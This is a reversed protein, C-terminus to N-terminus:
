KSSDECFRKSSVDIRRAKILVFLSIILCLVGCASITMPAGIERAVTGGALSGIPAFGMFATVFLSMMRGRLHGPTTYQLLTISGAIAITDFIGVLVLTLLGIWLTSTQSFAFVSISVPILAAASITSLKDSNKRHALILAGIFSGGAAAAMLWGLTIAGGGFVQDAFIPLMYVLPMILLSVIALIIFGLKLGPEGWMHKIGHVIAPLFPTKDKEVHLIKDRKMMLLATILAMFTLTNFLFCEGEGRWAVIWGAIMPGIMRAAHLMAGNLSVANLLDKKGVLDTIFANRAPFEFSYVCGLFVGLAFIQWLSVIGKLTLFALLFAQLMCLIQMAIMLKRRDYRDAVAGGILALILMPFQVAFNIAGLLFPSDTMRWVLWSIALMQSFTGILSISQGFFYYTFNRHKFARIISHQETLNADAEIQM